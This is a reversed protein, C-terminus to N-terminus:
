RRKDHKRAYPHWQRRVIPTVGSRDRFAPCVVLPRGSDPRLTLPMRSDTLTKETM